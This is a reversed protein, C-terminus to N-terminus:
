QKELNDCGYKQYEAELEFKRKAMDRLMEPKNNSTTFRTKQLAVAAEELHFASMNEVKDHFVQLQLLNKNIRNCEADINANMLFSKEGCGTLLIAASLAGLTLLIKKM